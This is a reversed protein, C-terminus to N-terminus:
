ASGEAVRQAGDAQLPVHISARTGQNLASEIELRAGIRSIQERISLLGFADRKTRRALAGTDFGVGHDEVLIALEGATRRLSVKASTVGAHKLVNMVLERVARFVVARTVDDMPKESGDDSVDLTIGYRKASDEALWALAEGLGLDYLIPPSLDFILARMDAIAQELLAM